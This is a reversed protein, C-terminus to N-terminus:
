SGLRDITSFRHRVIRHTTDSRVNVLATSRENYWITSRRITYINQIADHVFIRVEM